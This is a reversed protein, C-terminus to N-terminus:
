VPVDQSADFRTFARVTLRVTTAAAALVMVGIGTSFLLRKGFQVDAGPFLQHVIKGVLLAWAVVVFLVIAFLLGKATFTLTTRLFIELGEQNKRFPFFLFLLNDLAFITINMPILFLWGIILYGPEIPRILIAALLVCLQFVSALVVPAVLQGVVMAFPSVPLSKLLVMRDIDRRFDFRLAAPLLLLSYFAIGGYVNMFALRADRYIILPILALIAPPSFAIVLSVWYHRAGLMQRWALASNRGPWPLRRAHKKADVPTRVPREIVSHQLYARCERDASRHQFFRDVRYTLRVMAVVVLVGLVLRAAFIGDYHDALVVSAFLDFPACAIQGIATSKLQVVSTGLQKLILLAVPQHSADLDPLACLTMVITAVVATAVCVLVGARLKTYTERDVGCATTEVNMRWLELFTLAILAGLFGAPPLPLDPVMLAAFCAAKLTAAGLVTALRYSLLQNRTFPGGELLDREAPSWEIAQDPRRYAAKILHWLGYLAFGFPIWVRLLEPDASERYLISVVANGLWLMALFAAILSLVLRRPAALRRRLCRLRAVSRMRLLQLLAPHFTNNNM